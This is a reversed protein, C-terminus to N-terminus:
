RAMGKSEYKAAHPPPPTSLDGCREGTPKILWLSLNHILWIWICVLYKDRKHSREMQTHDWLGMSKQAHYGVSLSPRRVHQSFCDGKRLLDFIFIRIGPQM